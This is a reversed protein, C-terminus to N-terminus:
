FLTAAMVNGYKRPGHRVAKMRAINKKSVVDHDVIPKPYDTGIVCGAAKQVSLPAKWPEYIYNDPFKKLQPLWRRIYEGSKDTKKGFAVQAYPLHTDNSLNRCKSLSM